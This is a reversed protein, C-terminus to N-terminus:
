KTRNAIFERVSKMDSYEEERDRKREAERQNWAYELDPLICYIFEDMDGVVKLNFRSGSPTVISNSAECWTNFSRVFDMPFDESATTNDLGGGGPYLKPNFYCCLLQFPLQTQGDIIVTTTDHGFTVKPRQNQDEDLVLGKAGRLNARRLNAGGLKADTLDANTLNARNLKVYSLDVYSLDAGSLDLNSLDWESFSFFQHRGVYDDDNIEVNIPVNELGDKLVDPWTEFQKKLDNKLQNLSNELHDEDVNLGWSKLLKKLDDQSVRAFAADIDKLFEEVTKTTMPPPKWFILYCNGFNNGYNHCSTLHNKPCFFIGRDGTV